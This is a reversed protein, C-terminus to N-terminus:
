ISKNGREIPGGVKPETTASEIRKNMAVVSARLEKTPPKIVRLAHGDVWIADPLKGDEGPQPQVRYRDCLHIRRACCTATGRFGSVVDEVLSGLEIEPEWSTPKKSRM